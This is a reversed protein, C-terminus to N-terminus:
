GHLCKLKMSIHTALLDMVAAIIACHVTHGSSYLATKSYHVGMKWSMALNDIVPKLYHNLETLSPEKPGPIIGAMYMNESQYCIEYPLNLCVMSVLSCSTRAGQIRMGEIAFFDVNFTFGYHGEDHRDIFLAGPIPGKFTRLFEAQWVDKVFEPPPPPNDLDSKLDDCAKDM